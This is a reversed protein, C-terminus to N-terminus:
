NFFTMLSGREGKKTITNAEIRIRDDNLPASLRIIAEGNENTQLNPNWYLTTTTDRFNKRKKSNIEEYTDFSISEHFGQYIVQADKRALYEVDSGTRTYIQIVGGAGRSGYISAEAGILLDIREVDSYSLLSIIDALKTSQILPFGDIVWLIPGGGGARPLSISPNLTGLGVVQVGPINLFLQPITKPKEKNQYIVRTAKLDYRTPNTKQISKTAVLTIEDLEILRETEVKSNFEMIPKKSFLAATKNSYEKNKKLAVNGSNLPPIEYEYPIVKVLKTETDEGVTRFVMNAEGIVQLGSLKFLGDSNTETEKVIANKPTTILIQIKTNTLLTNILNYAQGYFELGDQFNYLIQEPIATLNRDHVSGEAQGTLLKLDSKYKENRTAGVKSSRDYSPNAYSESNDLKSLGISLETQVPRGEKDTVRFKLIDNGESSSQREVAIQLEKKDIYIPRSAWIQDIDDELRLELVGPPLDTKPIEIQAIRNTDFDVEIDFYTIGQAIGKLYISEKSREPSTEIRIFANDDNLNNVQLTYGMELVEPLRISRDEDLKIFYSEGKLPKLIFTGLDMGYNNITAVLKGSNNVVPISGETYNNLKIAVHQTLGHVLQGGEPYIQIDQVNNPKLRGPTKDVSIVIGQLNFSEPGYNMMWRTYTRIFYNGDEIKRPIQFAGESKGDIIKHYQSEILTGSENLLEVNLVKSASVRLQEPGTLVYAKFFLQDEPRLVLKDAYFVIQEQWAVLSDVDTIQPKLPITVNISIKKELSALDSGQGVLSESIILLLFCLLIHNVGVIKM